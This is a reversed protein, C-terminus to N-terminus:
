VISHLPWEAERARRAATRGTLSVEPDARNGDETKLEGYETIREQFIHLRTLQGLLGVPVSSPSHFVSFSRDSGEVRGSSECQVSRGTRAIGANPVSPDTQAIQVSEDKWAIAVNPVIPVGTTAVTADIWGAIAGTM